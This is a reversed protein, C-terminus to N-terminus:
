TEAHPPIKASGIKALSIIRATQSMVLPKLTDATLYCYRYTETASGRAEVMLFGVAHPRTKAHRPTLQSDFGRYM